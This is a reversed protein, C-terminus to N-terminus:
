YFYDRVKYVEGVRGLQLIQEVVEGCLRKMEDRRGEEEEEEMEELIMRLSSVREQIGM